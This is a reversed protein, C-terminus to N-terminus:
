KLNKKLKITSQKQDVELFLIHLNIAFLKTEQYRQKTSSRLKLFFHLCLATIVAVVIIKIEFFCKTTPINTVCCVVLRVAFKSPLKPWRLKKREKFASIKLQGAEIENSHQKKKSWEKTKLMARHSTVITIIGVQMSLHARCAIQESILILNFHVFSIHNARQM